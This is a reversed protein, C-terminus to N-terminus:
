SIILIRLYVCIIVIPRTGSKAEFNNWTKTCIMVVSMKFFSLMVARLMTTNAMVISLMNIYLMTINLRVINLM